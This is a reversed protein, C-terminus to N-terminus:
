KSVGWSALFAFVVMILVVGISINYALDRRKKRREIEWILEENAATGPMLRDSFKQLQDLPVKSLISM